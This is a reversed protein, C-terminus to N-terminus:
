DAAPPPTVAGSRRVTFQIMGWVSASATLVLALVRVGMLIPHQVTTEPIRRSPVALVGIFAGLLGFYTGMMFARHSSVNRRRAAVIGMTITFATVLSLAHLWDFGGTLTRIGFSTVITVGMAATWTWGILRHARDGRRRRLMQVLGFLLAYSASVAHVLILANWQDLV